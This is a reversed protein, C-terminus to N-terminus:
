CKLSHKTIETAPAELTVTFGASGLHRNGVNQHTRVLRAQGEHHLWLIHVECM